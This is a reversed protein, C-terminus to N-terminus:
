RAGARCDCWMSRVRLGHLSGRATRRSPIPSPRDVRRKDQKDPVRGVIAPSLTSPRGRDYGDLVRDTWMVGGQDRSMAKFRYPYGEPTQRMAEAHAVGTVAAM